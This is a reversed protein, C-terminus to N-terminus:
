IRVRHVRLKRKKFSFFKGLIEKDNFTSEICIYPHEFYSNSDMCNRIIKAKILQVDRIIKKYYSFIGQVLKLHISKIM